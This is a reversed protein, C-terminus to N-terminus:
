AYLAAQKGVPDHFQAGIGYPVETPKMIFEIGREELELYTAQCDDQQM